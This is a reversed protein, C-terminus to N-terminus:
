MRPMVLNNLAKSEPTLGLALVNGLANLCVGRHTYVVGKPQGTTGSTYNLTIPLHEDTIVATPDLPPVPGHCFNLALSDSPTDCLLHVPVPCDPLNPCCAPDALMLKAGSDELIYRIDDRDLRTNIANLVAGLAPVAFHAALMEPRNTLMVSVVDGKGVGQARLWDAMRAVVDGFEAYTWVDDGWAVGPAM